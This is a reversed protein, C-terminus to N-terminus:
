STGATEQTGEDPFTDSRAPSLGLASYIRLRPGTAEDDENPEGLQEIIEGVHAADVQQLAQRLEDSHRELYVIAHESNELGAVVLPLIIKRTTISPRKTLPLDNMLASYSIIAATIGLAHVAIPALLDVLDQALGTRSNMPMARWAIDMDSTSTCTQNLLAVCHASIAAKLRDPALTLNADMVRQELLSLLGDEEFLAEQLRIADQSLLWQDIKRYFALWGPEQRQANDAVVPRTLDLPEFDEWLETKYANGSNELITAIEMGLLDKLFDYHTWITDPRPASSRVSRITQTIVKQATLTAEQSNAAYSIWQSLSRNQSVLAAVQVLVPESFAGETIKTRTANQETTLNGFPHAQLDKATPAKGQNSDLIIWLCSGIIKTAAEGPEMKEAVSFHHYISGSDLLQKRAAIAAKQDGAKTFLLPYVLHFAHLDDEDSIKNDKLYTNLVESFKTIDHGNTLHSLQNWAHYFVGPEATLRSQLNAVLENSRSLKTFDTLKLNTNDAGYAIGLLLDVGQPVAIDKILQTAEDSSLQAAIGSHMALMFEIWQEGESFIRESIEVPLGRDLFAILAKTLERSENFNCIQYLSILDTHDKWQSPAVGALASFSNLLARKGELKQAAGTKLTALNRAAHKFQTISTSAWGKANDRYVDPLIADWGPANLIGNLVEEDIRATFIQEIRGHLLVQLAYQADVNYTLAALHAFLNPEAALDRLREDIESPRRLIGPDRVFSDRKALFLAVTPLPISGQWQDWLTTMANIFAIIQRPTTAESGRSLDFIKFVRYTDEDNIEKGLVKDLNQQFFASADAIVPPAVFLIADFSKRLVDDQALAGAKDHSKLAEVIHDRDYPVIVTVKKDVGDRTRESALISRINSWAEAIRGAPLRDVNDIVVIIRRQETQFQSIIDKFTEEFEHQSPDVERVRQDINTTEADKSFVSLTRSVAELWSMPRGARAVRTDEKEGVLKRLIPRSPPQDKLRLRVVNWITAGLMLGVIGLAGYSPRDLFPVGSKSIGIPSLWVYILPLLLLFIVVLLGFKSFKKTNETRTHVTRNTISDYITALKSKNAGPLTELWTILQELFTRRFNGTQATWLDFTFIQYTRKRDAPADASDSELQKKAIEVISSKGSGWRGELGIARTTADFSYILSALSSATRAHAGGSFLDSDTPRDFIITRRAKVFGNM